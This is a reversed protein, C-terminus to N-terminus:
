IKYEHVLALNKDETVDPKLIYITEYSNLLMTLVM